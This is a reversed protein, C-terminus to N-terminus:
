GCVGLTKKIIKNQNFSFQEFSEISQNKLSVTIFKNKEDFSIKIQDQFWNNQHCLFLNVTIENKYYIYIDFYGHENAKIKVSNDFNLITQPKLNLREDGSNFIKILVPTTNKFEIEIYGIRYYYFYILFLTILILFIIIKKLINM